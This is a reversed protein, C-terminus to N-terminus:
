ALQTAEGLVSIPRAAAQIRRGRGFAEQVKQVKAYWDYCGVLAKWVERPSDCWSLRFRKLCLPDDGRYNRGWITTCSGLFGEESLIERTFENFSGYSGYPYAFLEPAEGIKDQIVERSRRVEDILREKSVGALNIHSHGHAGFRVGASAMQRVQEWSLPFGYHPLAWPFPTAAWIFKTALFITAPIGLDLLHPFALTYNNQYGDDFVISVIPTTLVEDSWVLRIADDLSLVRVGWARLTEMHRLFLGIPTTIQMPDHLDEKTVMHYILINLANPIQPLGFARRRILSAEGLLRKVFPKVHTALRM